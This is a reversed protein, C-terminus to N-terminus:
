RCPHHAGRLARRRRLMACGSIAVITLSSPEPVPAFALGVVDSDTGFSGVPVYSSGSLTYLQRSGTRAIFLQGSDSYDPDGLSNDGPNPALQTLSPSGFVDDVAYVGDDNLDVIRLGNANPDFALFDVDPLSLTSSTQMVVGNLGVAAIRNETFTNVPGFTVLLSGLAPDYAIGEAGEQGSPLGTVPVSSAAHTTANVVTLAPSSVGSGSNVASLIVFGNAPADYTMAVPTPPVPFSFLSTAGGSSPDVQVITANGLNDPLTVGYLNSAASASGTLAISAVATLASM